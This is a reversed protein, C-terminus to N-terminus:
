GLDVYKLVASAGAILSSVSSFALVPNKEHSLVIQGIMQEIDSNIPDPIGSLAIDLQSLNADVNIKEERLIQQLAQIKISNIKM